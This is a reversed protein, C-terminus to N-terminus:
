LLGENSIQQQISKLNDKLNQTKYQPFIYGKFPNEPDGIVSNKPVNLFISKPESSDIRYLIFNDLITSDPVQRNLKLKLLGDSAESPTINL